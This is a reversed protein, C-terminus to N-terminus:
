SHNVERAAQQEEPEESGSNMFKLSKPFVMKTTIIFNSSKKPWGSLWHPERKLPSSTRLDSEVWTEPRGKGVLKWSITCHSSGGATKKQRLYQVEAVKPTQAM